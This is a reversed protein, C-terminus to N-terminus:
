SIRSLQPICFVCAQGKGIIIRKKTIYYFFFMFILKLISKNIKMKKFTDQAFIYHQHDIYVFKHFHTM